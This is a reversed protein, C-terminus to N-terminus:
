GRRSGVLPRDSSSRSGDSPFLSRVIVLALGVVHIVTASLWAIMANEPIHWNNAVGYWFFAGDAILIQGALCGFVGYGTRRRMKLDSDLKELAAKNLQRQHELEFDDAATPKPDAANVIEQAKSASTRGQTSELDL